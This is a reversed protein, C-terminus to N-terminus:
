DFVIRYNDFKFNLHFNEHPVSAPYVMFVTSNNPLILVNPKEEHFSFAIDLREAKGNTMIFHAPLLLQSKNSINQAFVRFCGDEQHVTLEFDSLRVSVGFGNWIITEDVQYISKLFADVNTYPNLLFIKGDVQSLRQEMKWRLWASNEYAIPHFQRTNSFIAKSSKNFSSLYNNLRLWGAVCKAGKCDLEPLKPQINGCKAYSGSENKCDSKQFAKESKEFHLLLWQEFSISSFAIQVGTKGAENFTEELGAHRDKDIVIWAENIGEDNQLKEAAINCLSRHDTKIGKRSTHEEEDRQDPYVQLRVTSEDDLSEDLSKFYWYETETGECAVYIIRPSEKKKRKAM